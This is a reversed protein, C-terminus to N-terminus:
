KIMEYSISLKVTTTITGPSIPSSVADGAAAAAGEAAADATAEMIGFTRRGENQRQQVSESVRVVRVNAFGAKKAHYRAQVDAMAWAKDRANTSSVADNELDFDPGSFENSGQTALLDLMDGLKSLDRLKVTVANNVLYGKFRSKGSALYTYEKTLSLGSTQVDADSVGQAKLQAIVNQMKEANLRIAERAKLARSSVGTSFVAVDPPTETSSVVTLDILPMERNVSMQSINLTPMEQQANAMAATSALCGFALIKVLIGMATEEFATGILANSFV